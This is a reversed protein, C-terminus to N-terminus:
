LGMNNSKQFRPFARQLIGALTEFRKSAEGGGYKAIRSTVKFAKEIGYPPDCIAIDFFKDTFQKMLEMCDINYLKNLELM